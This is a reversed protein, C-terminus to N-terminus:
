RALAKFKVILNGSDTTLDARGQLAFYSIQLTDKTLWVAQVDQGLEDALSLITESTGNPLHLEVEVSPVSIFMGEGYVLQRIAIVWRKTPSEILRESLVEPKHRFMDSQVFLVSMVVLAILCIIGVCLRKTWFSSNM